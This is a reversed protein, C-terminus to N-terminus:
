SVKASALAVVLGIHKPALGLLEDIRTERAASREEGVNRRNGWVFRSDRSRAISVDEVALLAYPQLREVLPVNRVFRGPDLSPRFKIGILDRFYVPSVFPADLRQLSQVVEHISYHVLQTARSCHFVCIHHEGRVVAPLLAFM